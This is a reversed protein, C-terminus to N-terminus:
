PSPFRTPSYAATVTPGTPAPGDYPEMHILVGEVTPVARRVARKVRGGLAHAAALTMTPTAHVHLDAYYVLGVKRATLKEVALVGPVAEAAARIPTLVDQGPTRDMLDHVALRLMAIGNVAIVVSAVLAAWDDAAAWGPGGRTRTGWIAVSIGIFAASSTIVDSLHHWADSKVARSGTEEGITHVRRALGIKVIVVGVLIALTWPAPVRHPTRIEHVAQIAIGLAAALLLASVTAAAIAEAKGHGYPHDEDAPRSAITLGSWVALSSFIDASSEVADAVLAYSHGIVGAALKLAALGANILIALQVARIGRQAQAATSGPIVADTM